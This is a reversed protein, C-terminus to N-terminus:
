AVEYLVSTTGGALNRTGSLRIGALNIGCIPRVLVLEGKACGRVPRVLVLEEKVRGRVQCILTLEGKTHNRVPRIFDRM